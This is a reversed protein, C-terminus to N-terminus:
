GMGGRIKRLSYMRAERCTKSPITNSLAQGFCFSSHSRSFEMVGKTIGGQGSIMAPYKVFSVPGELLGRPFVLHFASESEIRVWVCHGQLIVFSRGASRIFYKETEWLEVLRIRCMRYFKGERATRLATTTGDKLLLELRQVSGVFKPWLRCVDGWKGHVQFAPVQQQSNGRDFVSCDNTQSHRHRCPNKQSSDWQM